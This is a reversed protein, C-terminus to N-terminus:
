VRRLKPVSKWVYFRLHRFNAGLVSAVWTGCGTTFLVSEVITSGSIAQNSRVSKFVAKEFGYIFGSVAICCLFLITYFWQEKREPWVRYRHKQIRRAYLALLPIFWAGVLLFGLFDKPLHGDSNLQVATGFCLPGTLYYLCLGALNGSIQAQGNHRQSM